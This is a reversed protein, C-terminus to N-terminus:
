SKKIDSKSIYKETPGTHTVFCAKVDQKRPEIGRPDVPPNIVYRVRAIINIDFGTVRDVYSLLFM